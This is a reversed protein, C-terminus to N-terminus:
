EVAAPARTAEAAKELDKRATIFYGGGIAAIVVTVVRFALGAMLGAAAAQAAEIESPRLQEYFLQIAAELVGAGGPAFFVLVGSLEANPMFYLHMAFDPIWPQQMWLACFYFGAILGLHGALSLALAQAIVRPRSQYLAVGHILEGLMHGVRPIRELRNVWKWRTSGPYLLLGLGVFGGLTGVWLVATAFKLADSEPIALPLLSAMAGVTFLAHMGLIRDLFVTAVAVTRRATQDRALLIAKFLDGGVSGPGIYNTVLGVFGLRIADRLRFPFDQARVLLYWRVFTLLNSGLTLALGLLAFRWDKPALAVEKLGPWNGICLGALIGLAVIWRLWTWHKRLWIMCHGAQKFLIKGRCAKIDRAM